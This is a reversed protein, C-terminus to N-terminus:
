WCRCACIWINNRLWRANMIVINFNLADIRSNKFGIGISVIVVIEKINKLLKAHVNDVSYSIDVKDLVHGRTVKM